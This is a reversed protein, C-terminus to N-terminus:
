STDCLMFKILISFHLRNFIIDRRKFIGVCRNKNAQSRRWITITIEYLEATSKDVCGSLGTFPPYHIFHELSGSKEPQRVVPIQPSAVTQSEQLKNSQLAASTRELCGSKEPQRVVPIQPSAVTQLEQLKYFLALNEARLQRPVKMRKWYEKRRARDRAVVAPPKKKLKPQEAKENSSDQVSPQKASKPGSPLTSSKNKKRKPKRNLPKEESSVEKKDQHSATQRGSANNKLPTSEGNKAPFKTVLTFYKRKRIIKYSHCKEDRELICIIEILDKPMFNAATCETEDM